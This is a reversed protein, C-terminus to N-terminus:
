DQRVKLRTVQGLIVSLSVLMKLISLTSDYLIFSTQPLLSMLFPNVSPWRGM